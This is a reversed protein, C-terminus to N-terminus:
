AQGPQQKQHLQVQDATLVRNGQEVNVNGTFVASDPYNAQSQDAKIHVPLQSTDGTVLPRNYVPVGSMCQSALDALAQQSYLASWILSALLTPFSKKMRPIQHETM